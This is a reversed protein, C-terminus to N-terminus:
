KLKQWCKEKLDLDEFVAEIVIDSNELGSYELSGSLRSMIRERQQHSLQKKNVRQTLLRWSYNLAQTIGQNNIDKIRVPLQARM